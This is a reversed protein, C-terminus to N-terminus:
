HIWAMRTLDQKSPDLFESLIWYFWKAYLSMKQQLQKIQVILEQV